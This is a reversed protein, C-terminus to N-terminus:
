TAVNNQGNRISEPCVVPGLLDNWTCAFGVALKRVTEAPVNAMRYSEIKQITRTTLESRDACMQQTWGRAMRLRYVRQGFEQPTM